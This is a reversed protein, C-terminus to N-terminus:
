AVEQDLPLASVQRELQKSVDAAAQFLNTLTSFNDQFDQKSHSLEQLASIIGILSIVSNQIHFRNKPPTDRIFENNMIAEESTPNTFGLQKGTRILFYHSNNHLTLVMAESSVAVWSESAGCLLAVMSSNSTNKLRTSAFFCAFTQYSRTRSKQNSFPTRIGIVSSATIHSNYGLMPVCALLLPSFIDEDSLHLSKSAEQPISLSM